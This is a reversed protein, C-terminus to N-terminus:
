TNVAWLCSGCRHCWLLITQCKPLLSLSFLHIAASGTQVEDLKTTAVTTETKAEVTSAKGQM